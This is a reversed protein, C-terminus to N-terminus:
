ILGSVIAIAGVILCYISFYVLKSNRVLRIMWNCALFGSVFASVFGLSLALPSIGSAEMSFGGGVLELFAEGLIPVLVMLFSFQAVESKKVGLLLGTSITTGSRSLGPLVACAQSLGIILAEKYGISKGRIGKREQRQTLREGWFLLAATVWLMVGVILVGSGFVSEVADKFFVGVILIPIMSVVIKMLYDTEENWRFRFLGALLRGIEQRFAVLTSLVTAAHVAIEFTLGEVEVGFLEKGLTLHGSSSVPLFETLGQLLGLLIAELESM